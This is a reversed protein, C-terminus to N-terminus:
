SSVIVADYIERWQRIAGIHNDVTKFESGMTVLYIRSGGGNSWILLIMRGNILVAILCGVTGGVTCAAGRNCIGISVFCYSSLDNWPTGIGHVSLYVDIPLWQLIVPFHLKRMIEESLRWSPRRSKRTAAGRQFRPRSPRYKKYVVAAIKASQRRMEGEPINITTSALVM